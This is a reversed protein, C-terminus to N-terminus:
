IEVRVLIIKGDNCQYKAECTMPLRLGNKYYGSSCDLADNKMPSCEVKHKRSYDVVASDYEPKCGALLVLLCILFRNM